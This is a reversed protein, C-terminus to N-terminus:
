VESDKGGDENEEKKLNILGRLKELCSQCIDKEDFLERVPKGIFYENVCDLKYGLNDYDTCDDGCFDCRTVKM